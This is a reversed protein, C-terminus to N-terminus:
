NQEDLTLYLLFSGLLLLSIALLIYIVEYLNQHYMYILLIFLAAAFLTIRYIKTQGISLLYNYLLMVFSFIMMFLAFLGLYPSLVAYEKAPFFIHLIFNPFIFYLLTLFGSVLGIFLSAILVTTKLSEKKEKKQVILPFFAFYMPSTLYLIAKGMVSLAAYKGALDPTMFHRVLIIDLSTIATIGLTALLFELSKGRFEAMFDPHQKGSNATKKFQTLLSSSIYLIPLLGSLFVAIIVGYIQYGLVIFIIGLILKLLSTAITYLSINLFRLQGQLIGLPLSSLIVIFIYVYLILLLRIDVIHLYSALFPLCLLLVILLCIAFLLITKGGSFLISNLTKQDKNVSVKATYRAIINTFSSQFIGVLITLSVLTSYVGYDAVSLLHRGGILLNFIWNLINAIFNGALLITSGSILPHSLLIKIKKIM